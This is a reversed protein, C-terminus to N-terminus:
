TRVAASKRLNCVEARTLHWSRDGISLVWRRRKRDRPRSERRARKLSIM